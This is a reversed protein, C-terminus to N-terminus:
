IYKLHKFKQKITNKTTLLSLFVTCLSAPLPQNSSPRCFAYLSSLLGRAPPCLLHLCPPPAEAPPPQETIDVGSSQGVGPGPEVSSCFSECYRSNPILKEQNVSPKKEFYICHLSHGTPWFLLLSVLESTIVPTWLSPM